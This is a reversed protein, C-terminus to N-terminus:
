RPMGEWELYSIDQKRFTRVEDLARRRIKNVYDPDSILSRGVAILQFTDAAIRRNLDVLSEELRSQAEGDSSFSDMVDRDLGVSGVAIVPRGSLKHTWEALTLPSGPWAPEWFRRTSAHFVDVGARQLVDLFAGLDAPDAAISATFDHEKWQSFRFSIVFDSGCAERIARVIRVPFAAREALTTGGADDSRRNTEAWLFQDLFYGHAAHMEVGDAGADRAILASRVYGDLIASLDDGSAATGQQMGPYALGSPSRTLGDAANRLAGEHWLQMLMNGGASKVAEVCRKWSDATAASIRAAQSQVTATPHDIAGSEGIILGVGGLARKRLYNAAEPLMAGDVCWGRQMAPMVFRNPLTLRGLAFPQFLADFPAADDSHM